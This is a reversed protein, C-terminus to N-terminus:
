RVKAKADFLRDTLTKIMLENQCIIRDKKYVEMKCDDMVKEMKKAMMHDSERVIAKEDQLKKVAKQLSQLKEEKQSLLLELNDITQRHKVKRRELKDLRSQSNLQLRCYNEQLLKHRAELVKHWDLIYMLNKNLTEVDALKVLLEDRRQQQQVVQQRLSAVEEELNAMMREGQADLTDVLRLKVRVYAKGDIDIVPSSKLNQYHRSPIRTTSFGLAQKLQSYAKVFRSM